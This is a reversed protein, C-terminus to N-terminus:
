GSPVTQRCALQSARALASVGAPAQVPPWHWTGAGRGQPGNLPQLPVMHRLMQPLSAWHVAPLTQLAPLQPLFGRPAWHLASLSHPVPNQAWPRQQPEAQLPLQMAHLMGPLSPVQPLTGSPPASGAPTHAMSAQVLPQLPWPPHRCSAGPVTHPGALQRLPLARMRWVQEAVPAQWVVVSAQAAPRIQVAPSQAGGALIGLPPEQTLLLSQAEPEQTPPRQQALAQVPSQWCHLAPVLQIQWDTGSPSAQPPPRV